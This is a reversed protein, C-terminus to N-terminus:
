MCISYKDLVSFSPRILNMSNKNGREKHCYRSNARLNRVINDYRTDVCKFASEEQPRRLCVCSIIIFTPPSAPSPSLHPFLLTCVSWVCKEIYSIRSIYTADPLSFSVYKAACECMVRTRGVCVMAHNTHHTFFFIHQIHDHEHKWNTKTPRRFTHILLLYILFYLTQNDLSVSLGCVCVCM